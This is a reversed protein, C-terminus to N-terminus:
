HQRGRVRAVASLIKGEADAVMRQPVVSSWCRGFGRDRGFQGWHPDPIPGTPVVCNVRELQAVPTRMRVQTARKSNPLPGNQSRDIEFLSVRVIRGINGWQSTTYPPTM